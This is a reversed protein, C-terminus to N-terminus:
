YERRFLAALRSSGADYSELLMFDMEQLVFELEDLNWFTCYIEGHPSNEFGEGEGRRLGVYLLGGPRLADHIGQLSSALEARPVRSLVDEAWVADFTDRMVPPNRWDGHMFTGGPYQRQALKIANESADVGTPSGGAQEVQFCRAALDDGLVMVQPLPRGTRMVLAGVPAPDPEPMSSEPQRLVEAARRDLTQTTVDLPHPM